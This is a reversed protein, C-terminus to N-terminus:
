KGVFICYLMGINIVYFMVNFVVLNICRFTTSKMVKKVKDNRNWLKKYLNQIKYLKNRLLFLVVFSLLRNILVVVLTNKYFTYIVFLCFASIIMLLISGITFTFIDTVQAKEKYLIKLIIFTMVTYLVQFWINFHIFYKLVVYELIMLFMFLLRKEKLNKALIMFLAFYIAEPIQGLFVELIYNM